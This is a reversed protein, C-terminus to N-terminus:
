TYVLPSPAAITAAARLITAMMTPVIIPTWNKAAKINKRQQNKLLLALNAFISENGVPCAITGSIYIFWLAM